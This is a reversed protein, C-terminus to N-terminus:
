LILTEFVWVFWSVKQCIYKWVCVCAIGGGGGRVCVRVCVNYVYHLLVLSVHVEGSQLEQVSSAVM